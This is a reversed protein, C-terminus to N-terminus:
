VTKKEEFPMNDRAMANLITLLKRSCATIIVKAPKGTKTLRDYMEKIALNYRMATITAMYLATRVAARGGWISRKGQKNGSDNSWPALGALAAIKKRNLKGLEPLYVVLARATIDGVGKATKLVETKEKLESNDNIRLKIEQEILDIQNKLYSVVQKINDRVSDCTITDLRKEDNVKMQVLNERRTILQRLHREEETLLPRLEPKIKEAYNAIVQADLRDTKALRGVAKAFDRVQRPNAVVVPLEHKALMEVCPTEYGGTAELVILEVLFGQQKVNNILEILQTMEPDQKLDLHLNQGLPRVYIDLHNKAVDIGIFAQPTQMNQAYGIKHHPSASTRGM